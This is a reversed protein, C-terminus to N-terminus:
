KKLISDMPIGISSFSVKGPIESGLYCRSSSVTFSATLIGVVEGYSNLIPSGSDGSISDLTTTIVPQDASDGVLRGDQIGVYLGQSWRKYVADPDKTKFSSKCSRKGVMPFGIMFLKEGARLANRALPLPKPMYEFIFSGRPIKKTRLYAVDPSKSITIAEVEDFYPWGGRVGNFNVTGAQYLRTKTCFQKEKCADRIVHENTLFYYYEEDEKILFATGLAYTEAKKDLTGDGMYVAFVSRASDNIIAPAPDNVDHFGEEAFVPTSCIMMIVFFTKKLCKPIVQGGISAIDSNRNKSICYYSWPNDRGHTFAKFEFRKPPWDGLDLRPKKPSGM